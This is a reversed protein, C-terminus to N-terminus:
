HIRFGRLKYRMQDLYKQFLSLIFAVILALFVKLFLDYEIPKNRQIFNVLYIAFMHSLFLPYSLRGLLKDLPDGGKIYEVTLCTVPIFIIGAWLVEDIPYISWFNKEVSFIFLGLFSICLLLLSYKKETQTLHIAWCYGFIFYACSFFPIRYIINAMSTHCSHDLGPIFNLKSICSEKGGLFDFLRLHGFFLISFTYILFTFLLLIKLQRGNLLALLPVFLYFIFEVGLSWTPPNLDVANSFFSHIFSYQLVLFELFAHIRTSTHTFNINKTEDILYIFLILLFVLWFAPLLRFCRDFYFSIAPRKSHTSFNRYLGAMYYGSLFYFCLVASIGLEIPMSRAIHYVAVMAALAFRFSGM